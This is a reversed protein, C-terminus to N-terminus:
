LLDCHPGLLQKSTATAWSLELYDLVTEDKGGLAGRARPRSFSMVEKRSFVALSAFSEASACM